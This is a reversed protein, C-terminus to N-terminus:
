TNNTISKEKAPEKLGVEGFLFDVPLEVSDTHAKFYYGGAALAIGVVVITIIKYKM